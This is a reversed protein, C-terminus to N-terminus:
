EGRELKIDLERGSDISIMLKITDKVINNAGKGAYGITKQHIQDTGWKNDEKELLNIM